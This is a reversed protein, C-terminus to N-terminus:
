PSTRNMPHGYLAFKKAKLSEIDKFIEPHTAFTKGAAQARLWALCNDLLKESIV